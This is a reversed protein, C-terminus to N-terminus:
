YIANKVTQMRNALSMRDPLNINFFKNESLKTRKKAKERKSNNQQIIVEQLLKILKYFINM